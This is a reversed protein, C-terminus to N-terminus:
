YKNEGCSNLLVERGGGGEGGGRGREAEWDSRVAKNELSQFGCNQQWFLGSCQLLHFFPLAVTEHTVERQSVCVCVCVCGM